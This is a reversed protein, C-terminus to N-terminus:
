VTTFGMNLLFDPSDYQKCTVKNSKPPCESKDVSKLIEISQEIEEDTYRM